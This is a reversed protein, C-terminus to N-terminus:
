FFNIVDENSSVQQQGNCPVSMPSPFASSPTTAERFARDIDEEEDDDSQQQQDNNSNRKNNVLTYTPM